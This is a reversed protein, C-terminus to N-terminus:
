SNFVDANDNSLEFSDTEPGVTLEVDSWYLSSKGANTSYSGSVYWIGQTLELSAEGSLDTKVMVAKRGSAKLAQEIAEPLGKDAATRWIERDSTYKEFDTSDYCFNSLCQQKKYKTDDYQPEPGPNNKARVQKQVATYSYPTIRFETRAVPLIDGSNRVVAAKLKLKRTSTFLGGNATAKSEAPKGSGLSQNPGACATLILGTTLLVAIPLANM